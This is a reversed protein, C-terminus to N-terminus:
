EEFVTEGGAKRCEEPAYRWNKLHGGTIFYRFPAPERERPLREIVLLKIKMRDPLISKLYVSVRDGERLDESQEALGSLNPTLEVFVGYDKLGRVTGTVVTSPRFLAANEEWTGLLERHTLLVRRNERDIGLVAAYIKQGVRLRDRPHSIRSVSLRDVGLMSPVGCGIDVFAGFPELHTVTAPVVDGPRWSDLMTELAHEQARRRSLLISPEGSVEKLGIVTFSVPKGVLSLIAIDRTTGEAIGIATEARPIRGTYPGVRVTLDHNEDCLLAVGELITEKEMAQTLATISACATQNEPTYLLHGEPFFRTTVPIM